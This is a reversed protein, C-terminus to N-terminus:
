GTRGAYVIRGDLIKDILDAFKAPSSKQLKGHNAAPEQRQLIATQEALDAAAKNRRDRSGNRQQCTKCTPLDCECIRNPM